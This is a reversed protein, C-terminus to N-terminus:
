RAATDQQHRRMREIWEDDSAAGRLDGVTENITEQRKADAKDARETAAQSERRAQAAIWAREAARVSRDHLTLWLVAGAILAAAAGAIMAWRPLIM